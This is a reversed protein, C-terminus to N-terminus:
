MAMFHKPKRRPLVVPRYDNKHFAGIAFRLANVAWFNTEPSDELDENTISALQRHILTGEPITIKGEARLDNISSAGWLFKESFPAQELHPVPKVIEKENLYDRFSERYGEWQEDLDTFFNECYFMVVGDSVKRFFDENSLADSHYEGLFKIAGKRQRKGMTRLEGDWVQGLICAYAPSTNTPWSIGGIVASYEIKRSGQEGEVEHVIVSPYDDHKKAKKINYDTINM